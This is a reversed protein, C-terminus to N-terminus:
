APDMQAIDARERARELLLDAGHIILDALELDLIWKAPIELAGTMSGIINGCLPAITDNNGDFETAADVAGAFDERFALALYTAIAVAEPAIFGEGISEIAKRPPLKGKSLDVARRVAGCITESNERASAKGLATEIAEELSAGQMLCSVLAATYGASLVAEEHGHTLAASECGIRFAM